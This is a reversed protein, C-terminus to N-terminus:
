AKPFLKRPEPFNFLPAIVNFLFRTADKLLNLSVACLLLVGLALLKVKWTCLARFSGDPNYVITSRLLLLSELVCYLIVRAGFVISSAAAVALATPVANTIAAELAVAVRVAPKVTPKGEAGTSSAYKCTTRGDAKNWRVGTLKRREKWCRIGRGRSTVCATRMFGIRMPRRNIGKPFRWSTWMRDRLHICRLM